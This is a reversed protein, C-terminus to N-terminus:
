PVHAPTGTSRSRIYCSTVAEGGTEIETQVEAELDGGREIGIMTTDGGVVAGNMMTGVVGDTMTGGGRTLIDRPRDAGDKMTVTTTDDEEEEIVTGMAQRHDQHLVGEPDVPM